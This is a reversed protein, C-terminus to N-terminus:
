PQAEAIAQSRAKEAAADWAETANAYQRLSSVLPAGTHDLLEWAFGNGAQRTEITLRTHINM